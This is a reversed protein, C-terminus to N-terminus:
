CTAAIGTAKQVTIKDGLEKVLQDRATPSQGRFENAARDARIADVRDAAEARFHRSVTWTLNARTTITRTACAQSRSVSRTSVFKFPGSGM